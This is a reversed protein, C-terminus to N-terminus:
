KKRQENFRRLVEEYETKTYIGDWPTSNLLMTTYKENIIIISRIDEWTLALDKEAQEKLRSLIHRYRYNETTSGDPNLASSIKPPLFHEGGDELYRQFQERFFCKHFAACNDNCECDLCYWKLAKEILDKEAQGHGQQFIARVPKHTDVLESQVRKAHRKVTTYTPPYAKLAAEEARKSM